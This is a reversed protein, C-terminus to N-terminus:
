GNALGGSFFDACEPADPRPAPAQQPISGGGGAPSAPGADRHALAAGADAATKRVHCARCRTEFPGAFFRERDLGHREFVLRFPEVHDCDLDRQDFVGGCDACTYADRLKVAASTRKWRETGYLFRWPERLRRAGDRGSDTALYEVRPPLRSVAPALGRLRAM